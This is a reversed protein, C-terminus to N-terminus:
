VPEPWRAFWAALAARVEGALVGEVVEIGAGRLAALGSGRVRPHPDRAGVIVRRPRKAVILAACAPTRGQFSCPELTVYLDCEAVPVGAAEAALIAQVEAHSGGPAQTAGRGVVRGDRVLVCGVAPNDGTGGEASRGTLLAERMFERDDM